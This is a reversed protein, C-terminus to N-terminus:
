VHARGIEPASGARSGKKGKGKGGVFYAEEDGGKKKRAVLGQEMNQEVQRLELKPVGAVCPRAASPPAPAPAPASGGAVKTAFYDILTQCDEIKAQFAPAKAEDLLRETVEKRKDEEEAARQAKFKEARRARDENVKQWYRDGAERFRQASERKQNYLADLEASLANREDFLKNRGAFAEDSDKKLEDLEARIAEYRDSVAKVEPDDLQRRLEDMRARDAEISGQDAEFSEVIRRSRKLSSIEQLARKEDGLKLNGSEVEKELHRCLQVSLHSRLFSANPSRVQGSCRSRGGDQVSGQSECGSPGQDTHGALLTLSAVGFHDYCSGWRRRFM